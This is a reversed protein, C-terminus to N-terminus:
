VAGFHPTKPRGGDGQLSLNCAYWGGGVGWGEVGPGLLDSDLVDCYACSVHTRDKPLQDSAPELAYV